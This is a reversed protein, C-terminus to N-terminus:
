HDDAPGKSIPLEQELNVKAQDFNEQTKKMIRDKVIEPTSSEIKSIVECYDELIAKSMAWGTLYRGFMKTLEDNM